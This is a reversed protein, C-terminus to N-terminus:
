ETPMLSLGIMDKRLKELTDFDLAPRTVDLYDGFPVPDPNFVNQNAQNIIQYTGEDKPMRRGTTLGNDFEEYFDKEGFITRYDQLISNLRQMTEFKKKQSDYYMMTLEHPDNLNPDKTLTSRFKGISNKAEKVIPSVNFGVGATIDLYDRKLGMAAPM